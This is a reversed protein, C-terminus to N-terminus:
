SGSLMASTALAIDAEADFFSHNDKEYIKINCEADKRELFRIAEHLGEGWRFQWGENDIVFTIYYPRRWIMGQFNSKELHAGSGARAEDLLDAEAQDLTGGGGSGFDDLRLQRVILKGLDDFKMYIMFLSTPSPYGPLGAKVLRIPNIQGGDPPAARNLTYDTLLPAYAVEPTETAAESVEFDANALDDMM